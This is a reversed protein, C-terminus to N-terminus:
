DEEERHNRKDENQNADSETTLYLKFKLPKGIEPKETVGCVYNSELIGSHKIRYALGKDILDFAGCQTCQTTPSKLSAKCITCSKGTNPLFGIKISDWYVAIADNDYPNSDEPILQLVDGRRILNSVAKYAPCHDHGVVVGSIPFTM